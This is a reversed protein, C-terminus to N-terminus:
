RRDVAPSCHNAWYPRGITVGPSCDPRRCQLSVYLWEVGQGVREGGCGGATSGILKL